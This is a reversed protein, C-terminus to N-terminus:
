WARPLPWDSMSARWPAIAALRGSPCTKIAPPDPLPPGSDLASSKSGAVSVNVFSVALERLAHLPPRPPVGSRAPESLPPDCCRRRVQRTRFEEVRGGFCECARLLRGSARRRVGTRPRPRAGRRVPGSLLRSPYRRHGASRRFRRRRFLSREARLSPSQHVSRDALLGCGRTRVTCSAPGCASVILPAVSAPASAASKM